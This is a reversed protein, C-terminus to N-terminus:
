VFLKALNLLKGLVTMKLVFTNGLLQKYHSVTVLLLSCVSFVVVFTKLCSSFFHMQKELGAWLVVNQFSVALALDDLQREEEV